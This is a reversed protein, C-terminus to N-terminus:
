RAPSDEAPPPNRLTASHLKFPAGTPDLLDAIRGFPTDEASMLVTAGHEQAVAQAADTDEVGLYVAWHSPVADPLFRASDMLGAVSTGDVRATLYRVDSGRGAWYILGPNARRYTSIAEHANDVIKPHRGKPVNTVVVVGRALEYLYGPRWDAEQFEALTLRRGRDAPGLQMRVTAM